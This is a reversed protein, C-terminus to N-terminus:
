LASKLAALLARAAEDLAAPPDPLPSGPRGASAVCAPGLWATAKARYAVLNVACDAAVAAHAVGDVAEGFLALLALHFRLTPDRQSSRLLAAVSTGENRRVVRRISLGPAAPGPPPEDDPVLEDLTTQAVLFAAPKGLRQLVLARGLTESNRRVAADFGGVDAGGPAQTCALNSILLLHAIAGPTPTAVLRELPALDATSVPRCRIPRAEIAPAAPASQEPPTLEPPAVQEPAGLQEPEAVSAAAEGSVPADADSAAEAASVDAIAEDDEPVALAGDVAVPFAAPGIVPPLIPQEQEVGPIEDLEDEELEYFPRPPPQSPPATPALTGRKISIGVTGVVPVGETRLRPQLILPGVGPLVQLQFTLKLASSGPLSRVELGSTFLREGEIVEEGDIRLSGERYASELPLSLLLSAEPAAAAGDNAIDIAVGVIAGPIVGTQPAAAIELRMRPGEGIAIEATAGPVISEAGFASGVRRAAGDAVRAGLEQHRRELLRMDANREFLEELRDQNM